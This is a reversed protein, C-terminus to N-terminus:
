GAAKAIAHDFQALHDELKVTGRNVDLSGGALVTEVDTVGMFALSRRLVPSVLDDVESPTGPVYVDRTAVIIRTRKNELMGPWGPALRFTFGPRVIYDIWSKLVAPISFNYMPTSILLHGAAQLEGILEGSLSLAANMESTRTIDPPAYVGSIWDNNMYPINTKMLDRRVVAGGPHARLWYKIFREGLARSISKDGRPSVEISLLTSM